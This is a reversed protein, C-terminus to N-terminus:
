GESVPTIKLLGEEIIEFELNENWFVGIGHRDDGESQAECRAHVLYTDSSTKEIKDSKCDDWIEEYGDQRLIMSYDTCDARRGYYSAKDPSNEEEEGVHCWSGTM